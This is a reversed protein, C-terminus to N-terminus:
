KMCCRHQRGRRVAALVADACLSEVDENCLVDDLSRIELNSGGTQVLRFELTELGFFCLLVCV